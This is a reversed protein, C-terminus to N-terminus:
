LRIFFTENKMECLVKVYLEIEDFVYIYIEGKRKFQGNQYILIHNTNM